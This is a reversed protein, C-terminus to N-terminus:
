LLFFSTNSRFIVQVKRHVPHSLEHLVKTVRCFRTYVHLHGGYIHKPTTLLSSNDGTIWRSNLPWKQCRSSENECFPFTVTDHLRMDHTILKTTVIQHTSTQPQNSASIKLHINSIHATHQSSQVQFVRLSTSPRREAIAKRAVHEPNSM